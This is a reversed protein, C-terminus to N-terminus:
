SFLRQWLSPAKGRLYQLPNHVGLREAQQQSTEKVDSITKEILGRAKDDVHPLVDDILWKELRDGHDAAAQVSQGLKRWNIAIWVAGGVLLAGGVWPLYPVAERFAQACAAVVVCGVAVSVCAKKGIPVLFAAVGALAAVLLCIGTIWMVQSRLSDEYRQKSIVEYRAEAQAALEAYKRAEYKAQDLDDIKGDKGPKPAPLGPLSEPPAEVKPPDPKKENQRDDPCGVMFFCCLLLLIISRM